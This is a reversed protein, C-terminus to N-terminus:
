LEEHIPGCPYDRFESQGMIAMFDGALMPMRLALHFERGLFRCESPYLQISAQFHQAVYRLFAEDVRQEKSTGGMELRKRREFIGEVVWLRERKPVYDIEKSSITTIYKAKTINIGVISSEILYMPFVAIHTSKLGYSVHDDKELVVHDLRPRILIFSTM